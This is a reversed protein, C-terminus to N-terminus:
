SRIRKGCEKCWNYYGTKYASKVMEFEKNCGSCKVMVVSVRRTGKQKIGLDKILTLM